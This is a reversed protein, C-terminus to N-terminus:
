MRRSAAAPPFTSPPASPRAPSPTSMRPTPRRRARARARARPEERAVGVGRGDGGAAGPRAFCEAGHQPAVAALDPFVRTGPPLSEHQTNAGKGTLVLIPQANVAAAAQLDGIGRVLVAVGLVAIVVAAAAGMAAVVLRNSRRRSALPVVTTPEAPLGLRM